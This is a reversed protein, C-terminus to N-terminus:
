EVIYGKEQKGDSNRGPIWVTREYKGFLLGNGKGYVRFHGRRSGTMISTKKSRVPEIEDMSQLLRNKDAHPKIKLWYFEKQVSKGARELKRRMQRTLATQIHDIETRQHLLGVCRLAMPMANASTDAYDQPPLFAFLNTHTDFRVPFKGAPNLLMGEDDIYIETYCFQDQLLDHAEHYTYVRGNLIWKIQDLEVHETPIDFPYDEVSYTKFHIGRFVSKGVLAEVTAELSDENVILNTVPDEKLHHTLEELDDNQTKSEIWFEKFPPAIIGYAERTESQPTEQMLDIEKAISDAIFVPMDPLQSTAVVKGRAYMQQADFKYKERDAICERVKDILRENPRILM